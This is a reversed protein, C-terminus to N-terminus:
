GGNVTRFPDTDSGGSNGYLHTADIRARETGFAQSTMMWNLTFVQDRLDKGHEQTITEMHKAHQALLVGIREVCRFAVVAITLSCSAGSAAVVWRNEIGAILLGGVSAWAAAVLLALILTTLSIKISGGGLALATAATPQRFTRGM